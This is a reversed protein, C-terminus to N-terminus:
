RSFLRPASQNRADSVDARDAHRPLRIPACRNGTRRGRDRAQQAQRRLGNVDDLAPRLPPAAPRQRALDEFDLGGMDDHGSGLRDPPVPDDVPPAPNGTALGPADLLASDNYEVEPDPVLVRLEEDDEPTPPPEKAVPIDRPFVHDTTFLEISYALLRACQDPRLLGDPDADRLHEAAATLLNLPTWRHRDATSVPAVLSPWAPDATIADALATGLLKHLVPTRAPRLRSGPDDLTAPSLTAALRWWLAAAPLEDPLPCRAAHRPRPWCGASTSAPAPPPPWGPLRGRTTPARRIHGNIDDLVSHWRSADDDCRGLLEVANTELLLQEPGAIRSDEDPVGTAARFVAIEAVLGRNLALLPRAWAPADRPTWDAAPDAASDLDRDGIAAALRAIPDDGAIALTALHQRLV